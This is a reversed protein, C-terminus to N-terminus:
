ERLLFQRAHTYMHKVVAHAESWNRGQGKYRSRSQDASWFRTAKPDRQMHRESHLMIWDDLSALEVDVAKPEM